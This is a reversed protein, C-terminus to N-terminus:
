TSFSFSFLPLKNCIQANRSLNTLRLFQFILPPKEGISLQQRIDKRHYFHNSNKRLSRSCKELMSIFKKWHKLQFLNKALSKTLTAQISIWHWKSNTARPIKHKSAIELPQRVNEINCVPFFVLDKGNEEVEISVITKNLNIGNQLLSIVAANVM